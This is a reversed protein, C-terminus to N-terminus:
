NEVICDQSSVSTDPRDPTRTNYYSSVNVSCSGGNINLMFTLSSKSTITDNWPYPRVTVSSYSTTVNWSNAGNSSIQACTESTEKMMHGVVDDNQHFTKCASGGAAPIRVALSIGKGNVGAALKGNANTASLQSALVTNGAFLIDVTSASKPGFATISIVKAAHAAQAPTSAMFIGTCFAVYTKYGITFPTVKLALPKTCFFLAFESVHPPRMDGHRDLQSTYYM